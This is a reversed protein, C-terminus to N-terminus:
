AVAGLLRQPDEVRLEGSILRPLLVNRAEALVRAERHLRLHQAWLADGVDEVEAAREPTPLTVQVQELHGRKIHGMTTARDRAIKQFTPMAERLKAYVLWDPLDSGPIVKFIHQNVIAEDGTWRYVDLTASWSFLIDGPYATQEAPVEIDAYKSNDTVGSSLESIRIVLRGEGNAHKTFAGGNVYDAIESVPIDRGEHARCVGLLVAEVRRAGDQCWEIRDDLAGLVEAIAWQQPLPPLQMGFDAIDRASVRQRGSSGIMHAVAYDRLAPSRALYYVFMPHSVGDRGSLVIFETSGHAVEGPELVDVLSTKGNELCPTIRALLTDGNQFRSGSKSPRRSWAQIRRQHEALDAMGVYVSDHGKILKRAPNVDIADGLAVIQWDSTM